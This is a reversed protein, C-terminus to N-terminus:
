PRYLYMTADNPLYDIRVVIRDTLMRCRHYVLAPDTAQEGPTGDTRTLFNFAVAKRCLAFMRAIGRDMQTSSAFQFLGSAVVYDYAEVETSAYLDRVHYRYKPHRDRAVAILAESVDWGEGNLIRWGTWDGTGCGVDLVSAYPDALVAALVDWRAERSDASGHDGARYTPGYEALLASYYAATESVSKM